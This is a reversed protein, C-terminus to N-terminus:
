RPPRNGCHGATQRHHALADLATNAAAYNAQGPAGLTAAASSYLVFAALDSHRTLEHLHWATDLKPRLVTHLQVATLNAFTADDLAGASHVVATLPHEAPVSDLLQKLAERDATDCAAITVTAGLAALRQTLENAGAGAPGQRSVLLLHRAGHQTVLHEATLAGLTGTGGTILTTGDPILPTPLTLVLKGTHHAQALHRLVTPAHRIDHATLPLPNLTGDSFLPALEQWMTRIREPGADMVDFAKYTVGPHDAAVQEADRIDTKGMDILRGGPHLLRLSADTLEGTLCHLVIDIGQGGFHREFDATRSNAIQENTLGAARLLHQKPPSATASVALNFHRALQLAAHGVGGTAAHILLHEGDQADALDRLAYYATLYAIPVTAAEAFTWRDPFTSLLRYDTVAVRGCGPFAGMVRDSPKLGTV